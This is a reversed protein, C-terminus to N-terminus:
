EKRRPDRKRISTEKLCIQNQSIGRVQLRAERAEVARERAALVGKVSVRAKIREIEASLEEM